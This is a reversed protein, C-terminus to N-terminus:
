PSRSNDGLSRLYARDIRRDREGGTWGIPQNGHPNLKAGGHHVNQTDRDGIPLPFEAVARGAPQLVRRVGEGFGANKGGGQNRGIGVFDGYSAEPWVNAHAAHLHVNEAADSDAIIRHAAAQGVAIPNM